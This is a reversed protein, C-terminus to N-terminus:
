QISGQSLVYSWTLATMVVSAIIVTYGSAYITKLEFGLGVDWFLHRIGNCLHFYFSFSWTILLFQGPLSGLWARATAHANEGAAISILWYTIALIGVSLFIGTARHTISLISTLQPRYIQLHPSLPRSSM